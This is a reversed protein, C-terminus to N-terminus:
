HLYTTEDKLNKTFEIIKEELKSKPTEEVLKLFASGVIVADAGSRVYKKVDEPKSVGFGIGIPMRNAALNKVRKLFKVSYRKIKDRSGTTGYVAVLYLFGSTIELIKKIRNNKTNPSILFITDIDYKKAASVYEKSEEPTMDPLILGDFGANKVDSVFKHYGRNYLINTYTMLVFPIDTEKRIKKVLRLIKNLMIGKSLSVTSASQIIPGDALPDTFPFGIEIIDAGGKIMSKIILETYKEEPYGAMIYAILAKQKKSKLEEFKKQIRSM